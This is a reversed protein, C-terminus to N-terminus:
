ANQRMWIAAAVEISGRVVFAIGAILALTALGIDPDAVIIVGAAISLVGIVASFLRGSPEDMARALDAIGVLVFWFSVALLLALVSTGPHVLCFLGALTALFGVVMRLVRGGSSLGEEVTAFAVWFAGILLLNVGFIIGLILLTIDPYAIALVGAAISIVGLILVIWWKAPDM